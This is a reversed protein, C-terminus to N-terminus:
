FKLFNIELKKILIKVEKDNLNTKEIKKCIIEKEM